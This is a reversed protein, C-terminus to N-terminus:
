APKVMTGGVVGNRGSSVEEVHTRTRPGPAPLGGHHCARARVGLVLVSHALLRLEQQPGETGARGPVAAQSGARQWSSVPDQFFPRVSPKDLLTQQWRAEQVQAGPHTLLHERLGLAPRKRGEGRPRPGDEREAGM